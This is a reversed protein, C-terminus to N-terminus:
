PTNEAGASTVHTADPEFPYFSPSAQATGYSATLAGAASSGPLVARPWPRTVLDGAPPKFPDPVTTATPRPSPEVAALAMTVPTQNDRRQAAAVPTAARTRREAVRRPVDVVAVAVAAVEVGGAPTSPAAPIDPDSTTAPASGAAPIAAISADAGAGDGSGLESFPHTVFLAAVAVSAALAARGWWRRSQAQATTSAAARGGEGSVMAVPPTEASEAALAASVREAFGVPAVGHAKGRLVDGALQWRSCADRWGTDHDLRRLAFRAADGELAGDFLASLSERDNPTM